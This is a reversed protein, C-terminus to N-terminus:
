NPNQRILLNPVSLGALSERFQDVHSSNEGFIKAISTETYRYWQNFEPAPYTTQVLAPIEALAKKLRQIAMISDMM